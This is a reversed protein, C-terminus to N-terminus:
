YWGLTGDFAGGAYDRVGLRLLGSGGTRQIQELKALQGEVGEGGDLGSCAGLGEVELAEPEAETGVSAGGRTQGLRTDKIDHRVSAIIGLERDSGKRVHRIIGDIRVQDVRLKRARKLIQLIHSKSDSATLWNRLASVNSKVIDLMDIM